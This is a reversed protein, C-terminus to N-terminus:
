METWEDDEEKLKQREQVRETIMEDLDKERGNEALKVITNTECWQVVEAISFVGDKNQNMNAVITMAEKLTLRMKLVM